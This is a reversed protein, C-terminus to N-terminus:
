FDCSWNHAECIVIADDIKYTEDYHRLDTVWMRDSVKGFHEDFFERKEVSLNDLITHEKQTLNPKCM